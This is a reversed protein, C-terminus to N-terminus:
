RPSDRDDDGRGDRAPVRPPRDDDRLAGRGDLLYDSRADATQGRVQEPSMYGVTGLVSGPDTARELTPSHTDQVAANAADQRALGFDLVKVRGDATVFLNEPKLDRHV